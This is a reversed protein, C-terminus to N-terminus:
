RDHQQSAIRLSFLNWHYFGDSANATGFGFMNYQIGSTQKDFSTNKSNLRFWSIWELEIKLYNCRERQRLIDRMWFITWNEGALTFFFNGIDMTMKSPRSSSFSIVFSRSPTLFTVVWYSFLAAKDFVNYKDHIVDNMKQTQKQQATSYHATNYQITNHETRNQQSDNECLKQHKM